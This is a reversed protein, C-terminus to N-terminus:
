AGIRREFSTVLQRKDLTPDGTTRELKLSARRGDLTLTAIQNDYCPGEALRWRIEPDRVGAARALARGIVRGAGSNGFRITAREHRNLANRFPSCVGQWVASSVKASRPFGVEALYAHHVDGSLLGISAPPRGHAGSGHDRLLRVMRDFSRRFAPWHDFDLARRLKEGQRAAASGWAGEVLAEGWAEIFHLGPALLFPDSSGILLHDWEGEIHRELWEWEAEDLIARRGEELVRGSRADIVILRSGNLDRCYSWREGDSLQRERDGFERLREAADDLERVEQYLGNEALSSPSLNGIFQYVWYSALGAAERREWWPEHRIEEVWARSINWDDHVDHDDIVMSTSITSLLWRIVPDGWSEWYLRTYEEYDAVEEGPPKSTDRRARIFERAQPSGEDVYVQDGLLLLLDPWSSRPTGWLEHALTYLADFERGHEHDDKSLTYPPHHPLAVRCSGFAIRVPGSGALTTITSPPFESALPPWRREGDLLVEYEYTQGPELDEIVVLAYHHGEVCFTKENGALEPGRVSRVQAVCAADTEVWVVAETEGVYRLVPGLVLEAEAM